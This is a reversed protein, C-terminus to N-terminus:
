IMCQASIRTGRKFGINITQRTALTNVSAAWNIIYPTPNYDAMVRLNFTDVIGTIFSCDFIVVDEPFTIFDSGTTTSTPTGSGNDWRILGGSIDQNYIPKMYTVGTQLGRFCIVGTKPTAAM